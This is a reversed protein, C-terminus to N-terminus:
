RRGIKLLILVKHALMPGKIADGIAYISKINTELHENVEYRGAKDM